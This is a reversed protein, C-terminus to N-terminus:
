VCYNPFEDFCLISRWAELCILAIHCGIDVGDWLISHQVLLVCGSVVVSSMIDRFKV